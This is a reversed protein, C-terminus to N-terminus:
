SKGIVQRRSPRAAAPSPAWWAWAPWCCTPTPQSLKFSGTWQRPKAKSQHLEVIYDKDM